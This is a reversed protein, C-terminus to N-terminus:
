AALTYSKMNLDGRELRRRLANQTEKNMNKTRAKGSEILKSAELGAEVWLRLAREQAPKGPWDAEDFVPVVLCDCGVHWQEVYEETEERFKELDGGVEDFIELADEDELDLGGTSSEVYKPGRSILMLCWACTERGTAVRAWGIVQKPEPRYGAPRGAEEAVDRKMKEVVAEDDNVAGIVQRRGAMEVERVATLAVKAVATGSSDAQSMEKRAPEMDQIFWDFKIESLLRENRPLEPHHIFRESDYFERGLAAAEAYRREVEPFIFRLLDIWEKLSLVPGAFLSALKQVYQYLGATVAAQAVAYEEPSM